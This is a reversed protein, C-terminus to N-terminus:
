QPLSALAARLNDGAAALAATAADPTLGHVVLVARKVEGGAAAVAASATAADCGTIAQVMAAARRVLKANSAQMHVMLGRYIRGLRVMIGTSLLNLAIKQATGAKMRTSGAVVEAGTDLLVPHEAAQLLPAGPNNALAITVAGARRAAACAAITFATTGSAAVAIAVDSPGIGAAGVAATGADADDEAGEISRTLAAMGGAMLFELRARPWDYTPPLEAGDQVGIRGSTGAGIYVLRGTTGLASAAADIARALAPLAPRVAAAAALQGEFMADVLDFAPWADLDAYRPAIRETAPARDDM